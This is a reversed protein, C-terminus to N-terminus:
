DERRSEGAAYSSITTPVIDYAYPVFIIVGLTGDRVWRIPQDLGRVVVRYDGGLAATVKKVDGSFLQIVQDRYQAINVVSVQTEGEDSLVTRGAPKIGTVFGKLKELLLAGNTVAPDIATKVSITTSLSDGSSENFGLTADTLKFPLVINDERIVSLEISKDRAAADMMARLTTYIEDRRLKRDRSDNSVEVQLLLFDAQRKVSTAPLRVEATRSGTVVVEELGQAFATGALVFLIAFAWRSYKM